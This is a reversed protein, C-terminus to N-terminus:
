RMEACDDMVGESYQNFASASSHVATAVAGKSFLLTKMKDETCAWDHIADSVKYGPNWKPADSESPCELTPSMGSYGYSNQHPLTGGATDAMYDPYSDLRAGNCGNAGNSGYACDVLYQESLDMDTANFSAGAKLM